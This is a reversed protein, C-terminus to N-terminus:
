DISRATTLESDSTLDQVGVADVWIERPADNTTNRGSAWSHWLAVASPGQPPVPLRQGRTSRPTIPSAVDLSPARRCTAPNCLDQTKGRARRRCWWASSHQRSDRCGFRGAHGISSGLADERYDLDNLEGAVPPTDKSIRGPNCRRRAAASGSAAPRSYRLAPVYTYSTTHPLVHGCTHLSKVM